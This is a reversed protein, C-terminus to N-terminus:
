GKWTRCGEWETAVASTLPPSPAPCPRSTRLLMGSWTHWAAQTRWLQLQEPYCVWPGPDKPRMHFHQQCSLRIWVGGVLPGRSGGLGALLRMCSERQSPSLYLGRHLQWAGVRCTHQVTSQVCLTCLIAQLSLASTISPLCLYGEKIVNAIVLGMVAHTCPDPLTEQVGARRPGAAPGRADLQALASRPRRNEMVVIERGMDRLQDHM